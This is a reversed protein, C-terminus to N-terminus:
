EVKLFSVALNNPTQINLCIHYPTYKLFEFIPFPLNPKSTNSDINHTSLLIVNTLHNKHAGVVYM